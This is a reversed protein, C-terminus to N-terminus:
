IPTGTQSKLGKYEGCAFIFATRRIGDQGIM